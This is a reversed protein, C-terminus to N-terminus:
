GNARERRFRCSQCGCEKTPAEVEQTMHAGCSTCKYHRVSKRQFVHGCMRCRLWVAKLKSASTHGSM